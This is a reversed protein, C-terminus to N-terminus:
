AGVSCSELPDPIPPPEAPWHRPLYAVSHASPGRTRAQLYRDATLM